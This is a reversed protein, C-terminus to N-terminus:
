KREVKFVRKGGQFRSEELSKGVATGDLNQFKTAARGPRSAPVVVSNEKVKTSEHAITEVRALLPLFVPSDDQVM